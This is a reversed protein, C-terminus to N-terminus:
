IGTLFQMHYIVHPATSRTYQKPNPNFDEVCIQVYVDGTETSHRSYELSQLVKGNDEEGLTVFISNRPNEHWEGSWLRVQECMYLKTIILPPNSISGTISLFTYTDSSGLHGFHSGISKAFNISYSFSKIDSENEVDITLNHRVAHRINELTRNVDVPFGDSGIMLSLSYVYETKDSDKATTAFMLWYEVPLRVEKFNTKLEDISVSQLENLTLFGGAQSTPQLDLYLQYGRM